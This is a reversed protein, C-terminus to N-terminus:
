STKKWKVGSPTDLLEIGQGALRNRIEDAEKWKKQKRFEERKLVLSEIDSSLAAQKQIGFDLISLVSDAKKFANLLEEADNKGIKETDLLRNTKKSFDFLAALAKPTNLDSDMADEFQRLFGSAIKKAKLNVVGNEGQKELLRQITENLKQRSKDLKQLEGFRFDLQKRYHGFLLAMRISVPSFQALDELRYFNGLSKSMKQGDVLLHKGHLWYKALPKGTAGQSQAIENEHHPFMNDIGGAHIDFTEGLYKMSMASCEIHWGPRGKGLATEWFVDGDDLTWSKWLAFDAASKKEYEDNEVRNGAKLKKLKFHSLRGYARFKKINFFINGDDTKYALGNKMLKQILLVMDSIHATAEPYVDAPEIRLRKLEDFFILKYKRTVEDLPKQETRSVKITKDDVDTLNMVHKVEFGKFKLYRKLVDEWVFARWNGIHPTNYVTPGCTYLGVTKGNLPKFKEIKRSLSNYVRFM